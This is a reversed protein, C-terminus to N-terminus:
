DERDAGLLQAGIGVDVMAEQEPSSPPATPLNEVGADMDIPGPLKHTPRNQEIFKEFLATLAAQIAYAKNPFMGSKLLRDIAAENMQKVIFASPLRGGGAFRLPGEAEHFAVQDPHPEYKATTDAAGPEITTTKTMDAVLPSNIDDV